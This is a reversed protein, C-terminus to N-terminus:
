TIWLPNRHSAILSSLYFVIVSFLKQVAEATPLMVPWWTGVLGPCWEMRVLIAQEKVLM